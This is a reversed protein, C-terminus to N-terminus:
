KKKRAGAARPARRAKKPPVLAVQLVEDMHEM